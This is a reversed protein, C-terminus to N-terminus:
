EPAVGRRPVVVIARGLLDICSVIPLELLRKEKREAIAAVPGADEVLGVGLKDLQHQPPSASRHDVRLPQLCTM